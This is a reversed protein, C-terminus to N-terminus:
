ICRMCAAAHLLPIFVALALESLWNLTDTRSVEVNFSEMIATVNGLIYGFTSAGLIIGWLAFARETSNSCNIDGFGVCDYCLLM